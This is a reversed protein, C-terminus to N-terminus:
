SRSGLGQGTATPKGLTSDCNPFHQGGVTRTVFRLKVGFHEAVNLV